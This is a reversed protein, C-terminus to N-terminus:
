DEARKSLMDKASAILTDAIKNVDYKFIGQAIANKIEQVKDHNVSFDSVSSMSMGGNSLTVKDKVISEQPQATQVEKKTSTKKDVLLNTPSLLKNITTM